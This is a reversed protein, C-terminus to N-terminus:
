RRQREKQYIDVLGILIVLLIQAIKQYIADRPHLLSGNPALKKSLFQAVARAFFIKM